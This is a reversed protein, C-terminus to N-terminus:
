NTCGLLKYDPILWTENTLSDYQPILCFKDLSKTLFKLEKFQKLKFLLWIDATHKGFKWVPSINQTIKPDKGSMRKHISFDPDKGTM